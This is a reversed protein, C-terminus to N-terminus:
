FISTAGREFEKGSMKKRGSLQVCVLYLITDGFCHLEMSSSLPVLSTEILKIDTDHFRCLVGPWPNLARVRRDIDIATMIAPDVFADKRTLKRCFTIHSEDQLVEILPHKLTHVLLSSGIHSLRIGLSQTTEHSSIMISEKALIRGADLAEEMRQVTVGTEKDGELIAHQIPSAGRWRPLLSAHLNVTAIAPLDIMTRSFIQGYAVVVFFQFHNSNFFPIFEKNVDKPQFVPINNKDACVKVPSSTMIKKRGVPKDPQTIVLKVDFAVDAILAELSPVAFDPTGFFIVSYSM